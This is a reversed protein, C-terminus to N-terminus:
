FTRHYDPLFGVQELKQWPRTLYTHSLSESKCMCFYVFLWLSRYSLVKKGLVKWIFHLYLIRWSCNAPYESIFCFVSMDNPPLMWSSKTEPPPLLFENQKRQGGNPTSDTLQAKARAKCKLICLATLSGTLSMLLFHTFSYM